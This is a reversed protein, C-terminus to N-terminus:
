NVDIGVRAEGAGAIDSMTSMTQGINQGTYDNTLTCCEFCESHFHNHKISQFISLLFQLVQGIVLVIFYIDINDM